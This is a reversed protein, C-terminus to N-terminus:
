RGFIQQFIDILSTDPGYKDMLIQLEALTTDDVPTASSKLLNEAKNALTAIERQRAPTPTASLSDLLIAYYYVLRGSTPFLKQAELLLSKLPAPALYERLLNMSRECTECTLQVDRLAPALNPLVLKMISTYKAIALEGESQEHVLRVLRALDHLTLKADAFSTKFAKALVTRYKPPTVVCSADLLHQFLYRAQEHATRTTEHPKPSPKQQMTAMLDRLSATSIKVAAGLDRDLQDLLTTAAAFEATRLHHRTVRLGCLQYIEVADANIPHNKWFRQAFHLADTIEGATRHIKARQYLVHQHNPHHALIQDTVAIAQKTRNELLHRDLLFIYPVDWEPWLSIAKQWCDDPTKADAPLVIRVQPPKTLLIGAVFSMIWARAPAILREPWAAPKTWLWKEFQLWQDIAMAPNSNQFAQLAGMRNLNPSDNRRTFLKQYERIDAANGQHMVIDALGDAFRAELTPCTKRIGSLTTSVTPWEVYTKEHKNLSLKIKRLNALLSTEHFGKARSAFTRKTIASLGASFEQDIRMRFPAALKAPLFNQHLRTWNEMARTDNNTSYAIFGRLLLKWQQYPSQLGIGSLTTTATADDGREYAAFATLIASRDAENEPAVPWANAITWDAIQQRVIKRVREPEPHSQIATDATTTKGVRTAVVAILESWEPAPHTAAHSILWDLEKEAQHATNLLMRHNYIAHVIRVFFALTEPTPASLWVDHAASRAREYHGSPVLDEIESQPLIKVKAKSTPKRKAM